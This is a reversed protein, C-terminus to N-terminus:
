KPCITIMRVIRAEKCLITLPMHLGDVMGAIICDGSLSCLMDVDNSNLHDNTTLYDIMYGM